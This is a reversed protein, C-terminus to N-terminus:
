CSDQKWSMRGGTPHLTAVDRSKITLCHLLGDIVFGTCGEVDMRSLLSRSPGECQCQNTRQDHNGRLRRLCLGIAHQVAEGAQPIAIIRIGPQANIAAPVKVTRGEVTTRSTTTTHAAARSEPQRLLIGAPQKALQITKASDIVSAIGVGAHHDPGVATEVTRSIATTTSTTFSPAARNEIQSRRLV